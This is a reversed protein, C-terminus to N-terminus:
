FDIEDLEYFIGDQHEGEKNIYTAIIDYMDNREIVIKFGGIEFIEDEDNRHNIIWEKSVIKELDEHVLIKIKM